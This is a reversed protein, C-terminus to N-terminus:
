HRRKGRIGLANPGVLGRRAMSKFVRQELRRMLRTTGLERTSLPNILITFMGLRNGGYVDTFLQDGIVAVESAELGLEKLARRFARGLPKMAKSVGPIGLRGAFANVRAARANSVLCVKFGARRAEAVWTAFAPEIDAAGWPVVTNDLDVLLGRIHSRKLLGFDIDLVSALVLDPVLLRM